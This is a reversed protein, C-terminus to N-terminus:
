PWGNCDSLDINGQRDKALLTGKKPIEGKIQATRFSKRPYMKLSADEFGPIEVNYRVNQFSHPSLSLM